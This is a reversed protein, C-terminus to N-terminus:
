RDETSDELQGRDELQKEVPQRSDHEKPTEELRVVERYVRRM